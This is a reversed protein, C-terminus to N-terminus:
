STQNPLKQYRLVRFPREVPNNPCDSFYTRRLPSFGLFFALPPFHQLDTELATPANAFL